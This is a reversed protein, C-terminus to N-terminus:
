CIQNLRMFVGHYKKAAKNYERAASIKSDYHGIFEYNGNVSIQAVWKRRRSNWCVGKLGSTNDCHKRCNRSNQSHNAPRLNSRQNNLGNCDKHDSQKFNTFGMRELIIRHMLIMKRNSRMRIAYFTNRGKLVCWKWQNLYKYDVNSVLVYRGQTLKIQKM